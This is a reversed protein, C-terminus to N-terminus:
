GANEEAPSRIAIQSQVDPRPSQLRGYNRQNPNRTELKLNRFSPIASANFVEPYRKHNIAITSSQESRPASNKRCGACSQTRSPAAEAARDPPSALQAM